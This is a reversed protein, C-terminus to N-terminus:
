SKSASKKEKSDIIILDPPNHGNKYEEDHWKQIKEVKSQHGIDIFVYILRDSQEAKGYEKLQVNYGQFYHDNSSLKVEIITKDIGNSIKFDLPGRGADSECSMDLKNAHIYSM